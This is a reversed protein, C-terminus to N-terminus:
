APQWPGAAPEAENDGPWPPMTVAVAVLAAAGLTRFQFGHGCPITLCVGPALPTVQVDNGAARWMEGRGSLVYWIEDVSRHRVARSVRGPPLSFHAMSGGALRCLIRVESGDPAIVDYEAPLTRTEAATM